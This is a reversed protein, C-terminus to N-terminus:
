NLIRNATVHQRIAERVCGWTAPLAADEFLGAVDRDVEEPDHRTVTGPSLSPRDNDVVHVRGPAGASDSWRRRSWDTDAQRFLEGLRGRLEADPSEARWTEVEARVAPALLGHQRMGDLLQM